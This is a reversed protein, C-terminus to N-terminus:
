NPIDPGVYMDRNMAYHNSAMGLMRGYEKLQAHNITNHSSFHQQLCRVLQYHTTWGTIYLRRVVYLLDHVFWHDQPCLRNFIIVLLDIVYDEDDRHYEQIMDELINCSELFICLEVIDPFHHPEYLPFEHNRYLDQEIYLLFSEPDMSIHPPVGITIMTIPMLCRQEDLATEVADYILLCDDALSELDHKDYIKSFVDGKGIVSLECQSGLFSLVGMTEETRLRDM